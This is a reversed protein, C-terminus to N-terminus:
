DLADGAPASEPLIRLGLVVRGPHPAADLLRTYAYRGKYTHTHVYMHTHTYIYIYIYIYIYVYIYIYIYVYMPATDLLRAGLALAQPPAERGLASLILVPDSGM